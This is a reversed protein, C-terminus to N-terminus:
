RNDFELDYKYKASSIGAMGCGAMKLANRLALSIRLGGARDRIIKVLIYGDQETM